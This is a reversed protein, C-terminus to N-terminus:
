KTQDRGNNQDKRLQKLVSAATNRDVHNIEKLRNVVSKIETESAGVAVALSRYQLQMHGAQIGNTALARLAALNQALGVSITVQALQNATQVAMLAQNIKVLPVIDISGGVIGLSLPLTLVGNLRNDEFRWTSLGKYVGDIAAYAHAGSEVARWDNGSAIVAADIGNMIGKNHTTARYPDIQALESLQAIKQAVQEGTMTETALDTVKISCVATQLSQTAFNSLIATLVNFEHNTLWRGVAECMTNVVNAGMAEGTDILLEVAIWDSKLTRIKIKKAGGGRQQMSPKARNAVQLIHCTEQQLWSITENTDHIDILVVQGIMMSKEATVKFGGNQAVLKAGNSAAAIVSPEEVVMPVIYNQQNVLLNVAIGEPLHYSTVYNEVMQENVGDIQRQLLEQQKKSLKFQRAVIQQRQALTLKYFGHQWDAM